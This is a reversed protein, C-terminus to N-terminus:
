LSKEEVEKSNYPFPYVHIELFDRSFRRLWRLLLGMPLTLVVGGAAPFAM